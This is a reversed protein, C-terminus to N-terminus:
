ERQQLYLCQFSTLHVHFGEFPRIASWYMLPWLTSMTLHTLTLLKLTSSVKMSVTNYSRISPEYKMFNQTPITNTPPLPNYFKASLFVNVMILKRWIFISLQQVAKHFTQIKNQPPYSGECAQIHNGTNRGYHHLWALTHRGPSVVLKFCATYNYAGCPAGETSNAWVWLPHTTNTVSSDGLRNQSICHPIYRHRPSLQSDPLLWSKSTHQVHGQIDM